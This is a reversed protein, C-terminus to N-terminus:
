HEIKSLTNLKKLIIKQITQTITKHRMHHGNPRSSSLTLITIIVKSNTFEDQSYFIFLYFLQLSHHRSLWSTEINCLYMSNKTQESCVM